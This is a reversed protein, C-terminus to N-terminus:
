ATLLGFTAGGDRSELVGDSTVALVRLSGDADVHAGVAQPPGGIGARETWTAGADASVATTNEKAM